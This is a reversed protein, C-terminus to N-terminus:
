FPTQSADESETFPDTESKREYDAFTNGQPATKGSLKPVINELTVKELFEIADTKDWTDKGNVKVLKWDPMNTLAKSYFHKIPTGNQSIFLSTKEDKRSLSMKMTKTVDVNPLMKLIDMAHGDTYGLSMAFMEGDADFTFVWQKGLEPSEKTEISVLIGDFNQYHKEWVTVGNKNVRSVADTDTENCKVAFKGLSNIINFFKSSSRNSFGSM